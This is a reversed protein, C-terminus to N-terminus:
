TNGSSGEVKQQWSTHGAGEVSAALASLAQPLMEQSPLASHGKWLEQIIPVLSPAPTM